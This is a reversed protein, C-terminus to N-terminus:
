ADDAEHGNGWMMTGYDTYLRPPHTELGGFNKGAPRAWGARKEGPVQFASGSVCQKRRQDSVGAEHPVAEVQIVSHQNIQQGFV